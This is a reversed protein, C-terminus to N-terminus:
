IRTVPAMFLYGAGYVTKILTPNRTDDRLKARLRSIRVDVSRDYGSAGDGQLHDMIRDRSLLQGPADVFVRLLDVEASSLRQESADAHMLSFREFDITWDGFRVRQGRAQRGDAPARHPGADSDAGPEADSDRPPSRHVGQREVRRMVSRVRALLEPPEFPKAIYDDAGLELGVVKDTLARRGSIIISAIGHRTSLARVLDLGNQDPLGLDVLCLDYRCESLSNEFAEARDFLRTRFGHDELVGQLIAGIDADDEVIAVHQGTPM